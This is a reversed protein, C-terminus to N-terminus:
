KESCLMTEAIHAYAQVSDEVDYVVKKCNQVSSNANHGVGWNACGTTTIIPALHGRPQCIKPLFKHFIPRICKQLSVVM